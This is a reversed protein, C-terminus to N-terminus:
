EEGTKMLYILCPHDKIKWIPLLPKTYKKEVDWSSDTYLGLHNKVFQVADSVYDM